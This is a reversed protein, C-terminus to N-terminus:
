SAVPLSTQLKPGEWYNKSLGSGKETIDFMRTISERAKNFVKTDIEINNKEEILSSLVNELKHYKMNPCLPLPFTTVITKDTMDRQM